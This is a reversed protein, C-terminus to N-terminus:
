EAHEEDREAPAEPSEPIKRNGEKVFALFEPERAKWFTKFAPLDVDASATVVKGIESQLLEKEKRNREKEKRLEEKIMQKLEDQKKRLDNLTANAM